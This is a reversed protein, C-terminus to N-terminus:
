SMSGRSICGRVYCSDCLELTCPEQPVPVDRQTAIIDLIRRVEPSQPDGLLEIM